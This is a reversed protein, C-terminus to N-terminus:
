DMVGSSLFDEVSKDLTVSFNHDDVTRSSKDINVVIHRDVTTDGDSGGPGMGSDKQAFMIRSSPTNALSRGSTNHQPMDEINTITVVGGDGRIYHRANLNALFASIYISSVPFQPVAAWNNRGYTCLDIILSVVNVVVTVLGTNVVLIMLRRITNTTRNSRFFRKDVANAERLLILMGAAIASDIILGAVLFTTSIRLNNPAIVDSYEKNIVFSLYPLALLLALAVLQPRLTNDFRNVIRRMYYFQVVGIIIYGVWIGHLAEAPVARVVSVRGWNAVLTHWPAMTVLVKHITDTVCNDDPFLGNIGVLRSVASKLFLSDQEYAQMVNIGWFACSLYGGLLVTGYTSSLDFVFPNELPTTSM